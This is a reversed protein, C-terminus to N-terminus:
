ITPNFVGLGEGRRTRFSDGMAEPYKRLNEATLNAIAESVRPSAPWPNENTNLKVADAIKPQFVRPTGRWRNM